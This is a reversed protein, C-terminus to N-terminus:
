AAIIFRRSFLIFEYYYTNPKYAKILKKYINKPDRRQTETQTSINRYWYVFLCIVSICSFLGCWWYAGFCKSNPDYFYVTNLNPLTICGLLKFSSSLISGASITCLKVAAAGINLEIPSVLYKRVLIKVVFPIWLLHVLCCFIFFLGLVIELLPDSIFPFMCFGSSSSSTMSNLSFDFIGLIPSLSHTISKSIFIQNLAQFYYM